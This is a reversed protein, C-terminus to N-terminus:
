TKHKKEDTAARKAKASGITLLVAAVLMGLSHEVTFFRISPDKMDGMMQYWKNGFYLIFGLVVQLHFSMVTFSALKRDMPTYPKKGMAGAIAKFSAVILFLLVIYRLGSHAAVLADMTTRKQDPRGAAAGQMHM